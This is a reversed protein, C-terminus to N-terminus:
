WQILLSVTFCVSEYNVNSTEKILIQNCSVTHLWYMMILMYVIIFWIKAGTNKNKTWHILLSLRVRGGDDQSLYGPFFAQLYLTM